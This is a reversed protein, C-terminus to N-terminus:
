DTPKTVTKRTPPWTEFDRRTSSTIQVRPPGWTLYNPDFRALIPPPIFVFRDWPQMDGVAVSGFREPRPHPPQWPQVEWGMNFWRLFRQQVGDDGRSFTASRWEPARHPPQFPQVEWGSNFWRVYVGETGDDGRLWAGAKYEPARHPPQWPQVEWGANRWNVFPYQIGDDGRLMAEIRNIKFPPQWSQVEWAQTTFAPPVFTFPGEIGDEWQSLAGLRMNMKPFSPPQPLQIEWGSPFFRIMQQQVGDDGRLFAGAREHKVRYSIAPAVDWGQVAPTPPVFVYVADMGPHGVMFAGAREPRPHPPQWPQVEWGSPLFQILPLQAGDDGRWSPDRRLRTWPLMQHEYGWPFFTPPVFVFKADVVSGAAVAGSREPRPHPPQWPLMEWGYPQFSFSAFDVSGELGYYRHSASPRLHPQIVEWGWAVPTAPVFVFTADIGPHGAMIAGAREPRPHQPQHPQIEWGSPLFRLFTFQTGDDGRMIATKQYDDRPYTLLDPLTPQWGGPLFNIFTGQTGDDGRM